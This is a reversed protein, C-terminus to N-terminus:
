LYTWLLHEIDCYSGYREPYVSYGLVTDDIKYPCATNIRSDRMVSCKQENLSFKWNHSRFNISALEQQLLFSRRSFNKKSNDTMQLVFFFNLLFLYKQSMM